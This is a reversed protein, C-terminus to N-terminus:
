VRRTPDDSAPRRLRRRLGLQVRAQLNFALISISENHETRGSQLSLCHM